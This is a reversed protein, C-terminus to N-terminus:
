QSKWTCVTCMHVFLPDRCYNLGLGKGTQSPKKRSSWYCSCSPVGILCTAGCDSSKVLIFLLIAWLRFQFSSTIVPNVAMSERRQKGFTLTLCVSSKILPWWTVSIAIKVSFIQACDHNWPLTLVKVLLGTVNAKETWKDDIGHVDRVRRCWECGRIVSSPFNPACSRPM